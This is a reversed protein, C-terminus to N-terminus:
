FTLKLSLQLSRPGGEQFLPNLGGLGQNLMSSSQVCAPVFGFQICGATNAFNPHNLVNFADARFQLNLRETIAFKRALSLDVQTLGFGTIDNRPETGQRVTSPVSFANVNLSKGGPATSDPTWFSQGTVIDPRTTVVGGPDPSTGFVEANFPFGTRAVIVTDISWDKTVFSLARYRLVGPIAYTIAGSFSHRVDFGSSGYDSAASIITGSLGAVSDDSASDLSHSWTYNLLAQVRNSLPRRYQVQLADYNSRATNGTLLFESAFSANPKFLATRRLLDRGAQGVFTASVVQKGAFSKELAVNWQYSRPLALDPSFALVNSYPPQLSLGPLFPSVDTVPVSVNTFSKSTANPFNVALDAAAGVGLDYFIGAGARLVFDGKETLTYAIGVRPALNGYRTSWLPTGSPALALNAPDNVNMWSALTTNGRASPAPALEWRLGYTLALRPTVRWIDQGYLSLSQALFASSAAATTRINLQGTSLFKGVSSSSYQIDDQFPNRDLFIGRYDGGFKLQHVGVAIALDDAFNLQKTENRGLSGILYLSTDTTRFTSANNAVSLSGLLVSPSIPVAGGFSDLAASLESSQSSYNFRLMNALSNSLLMNMGVTLTKTNVPTHVLESLSQGSQGGGGRNVVESPAYSYRGFFGIKDSVKHDVRMSTSNLSATNSFTGTFQAANGSPSVPGNPQPFANLFPALPMPASARASSSPVLIRGTQPLRLRAGEYSFFFFTKNKWIPGGLFGGFDNHREAARPQGTQNAFWDNADLVDNRFYNYLGGHFANTGSRTTLIVQGGPTKGFEPAFSSTEIRFEQLAEVSVLSSTGGLASFAQAGGTGTQGVGFGPGIGFNASVGDVTFNNADTRQGAVSFQGAALGTQQNPNPAIVVGPTLQLLTNFSRGNM